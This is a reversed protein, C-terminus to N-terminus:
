SPEGPTLSAVVQDVAAALAARNRDNVIVHDARLAKEDDSLQAAVRDEFYTGGSAREGVRIVRLDQPATVLVIADYRDELSAEFLLPVEAVIIGPHGEADNQAEHVFRLWERAVLPHLLGELWRREAPDPFVIAAIAARDVEGADPGDSILVRDGWRAVVADRVDASRYLEHVVTDASFQLAGHKVFEAVVTSKGAGIGGTVGVLVPRQRTVAGREDPDNSHRPDPM